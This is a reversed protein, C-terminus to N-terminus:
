AASGKETKRLYEASALKELDVGLVEAMLELREPLANRTGSEIESILSLSCSLQEALQTKTLGAAERAKQVRAPRHNLKKM